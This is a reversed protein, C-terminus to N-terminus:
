EYWDPEDRNTLFKQYGVASLAVLLALTIIASGISGRTFWAIAALVLLVGILIKKRVTMRRQWWRREM